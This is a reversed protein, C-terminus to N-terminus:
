FPGPSNDTVRNAAETIRKAWVLASEAVPLGHSKVVLDLLNILIKFEEPTGQVSVTPTLTDNM